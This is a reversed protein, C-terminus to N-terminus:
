MEGFSINSLGKSRVYQRNRLGRAGVRKAAEPLSQVKGPISTGKHADYFQTSEVSVVCDCEHPMLSSKNFPVMDAPDTVASPDGWPGRYTLKVDEIVCRLRLWSGIVVWVVGPREYEASQSSFLGSSERQTKSGPCVLSHLLQTTLMLERGDEINVGAAYTWGLNFNIPSTREYFMTNETGFPIPTKRYEASRTISIEDPVYPLFIKTVARAEATKGLPEIALIYANSVNGYFM